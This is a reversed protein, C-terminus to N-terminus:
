PTSNRSSSAGGRCYRPRGTSSRRPWMGCYWNVDGIARAEFNVQGRGSRATGNATSASRDSSKMVRVGRRTANVAAVKAINPQTGSPPASGTPEVVVLVVEEDVVLVVDLVVVVELVVVLVTGSVVVVDVVDVVTGVDVVVTSALVVVAGTLVVTVVTGARFVGDTM